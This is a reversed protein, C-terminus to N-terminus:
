RNELLRAGGITMVAYLGAPIEQVSVIDDEEVDDAVPLCADYICCEAPTLKWNDPCVGIVADVGHWLGRARAWRELAHSVVCLLLVLFQFVPVDGQIRTGFLGGLVRVADLFTEARFFVFVFAAFHFM